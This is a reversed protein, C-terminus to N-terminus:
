RRGEQPTEADPEDEFARAAAAEQAEREVEGPSASQAKLSVLVGGDAAAAGLAALLAGLWFIWFAWSLSYSLGLFNWILGAACIQVGSRLLALNNAFSGDRQKWHARFRIIEYIIWVSIAPSGLYASVLAANELGAAQMLLGSVAPVLIFLGVCVLMVALYAAAALEGSRGGATETKAESFVLVLRQDLHAKVPLGLRSAARNRILRLIVPRVAYFGGLGLAAIGATLSVAWYRSGFGPLGALLPVAGVGILLCIVKTWEALNADKSSLSSIHTDFNM